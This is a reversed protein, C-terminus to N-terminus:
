SSITNTNFQNNYYILILILLVTGNVINVDLIHNDFGVMIIALTAAAHSTSLGFILQRETNTMKFIWQTSLAALYKSFIAFSTLVGAVILAWTGNFLVQRVCTTM